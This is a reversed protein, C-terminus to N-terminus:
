LPFTSFHERFSLSKAKLFCCYSSSAPQDEPAPLAYSKLADLCSHSNIPFILQYDEGKELQFIFSINPTNKVTRFIGKYMGNPFTKFHRM